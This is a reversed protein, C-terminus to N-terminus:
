DRLLRDRRRLLERKLGPPIEGIGLARGTYYLAKAPDGLRYEADLALLRYAAATIKAPCAGFRPPAADGTLALLCDRGDQDWHRAFLEQAAALVARPFGRRAADQLLCFGTEQLATIQLPTYHSSFFDAGARSYLQKRWYLAFRERNGRFADLGALPEAAVSALTQFLAALGYIDRQNHAAIGLLPLPDGTRLFSFWSDPAASGPVDGTREVDLVAAELERLSCSPLAGRWLRRAPYLLDGHFYGPFEMGKMRCRNLLVPFDFTKGNFSLVFPPRGTKGSALEGLAATLFEEEGPYDLLLYQTICLEPTEAALRGFAALFAVTGAGTSLGTTELDFFVLDEAAPMTGVAAMYPRLEPLAVPLAAPLLSAAAWPFALRASHRATLTGAAEWHPPLPAAGLAPAKPLARQNERIYQLRARM